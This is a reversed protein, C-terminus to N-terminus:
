IESSLGKLLVSPKPKCTQVMFWVDNHVFPATTSKPRVLNYVLCNVYVYLKDDEQQSLLPCPHPRRLPIMQDHIICLYRVSKTLAPIVVNVYRELQKVTYM